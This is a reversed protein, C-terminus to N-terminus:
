TWNRQQDGIPPLRVKGYRGGGDNWAQPVQRRLATQNIQFRHLCENIFEPFFVLAFPQLGLTQAAEAHHEFAFHVSPRSLLAIEVFEGIQTQEVRINDAALSRGGALAHSIFTRRGHHITLTRLRAMGQVKCASLFRRRIAHRQLGYGHRHSQVSCVFPDTGSAGQEVTAEEVGSPRGSNRFGVVASSPPTQPEQHDRRSACIPDRFKWSWMTSSCDLLKRSRAIRLLVFAPCHNPKAPGNESCRPKNANDALVTALERRTLLRTQDLHWAPTAHM